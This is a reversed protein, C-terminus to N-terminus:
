IHILSLDKEIYEKRPEWIEALKAVDKEKYDELNYRM